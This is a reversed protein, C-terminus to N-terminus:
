FCRSCATYGQAKAENIDIPIKSNSLYQCGSRHYKSGTDTIYVTYSVSSTEGSSSSNSSSDSYSPEEYVHEQTSGYDNEHEEAAARYGEAYGSSRAGEAEQRACQASYAMALVCAALTVSLAVKLKGM